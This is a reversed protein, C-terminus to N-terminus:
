PVPFMQTRKLVYLSNHIPLACIGKSQLELLVKVLLNSEEFFLRGSSRGDFHKAITTHQEFVGKGFAENITEVNKYKCGIFDSKNAKPTGTDDHVLNNIYRKVADRKEELGYLEYVENLPM